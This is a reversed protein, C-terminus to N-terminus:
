LTPCGELNGNMKGDGVVHRWLWREFDVMQISDYDRHFCDERDLGFAYGTRKTVDGWGVPYFVAVPKKEFWAAQHLASWSGVFASANRVLNLSAPVTLMDLVQINGGAFMRADENAHIVRGSPESRPFSRCVLYVPVPLRRLVKVLKETLSPTFTREGISGAFPCFVVHGTSRVDDPADFIPQSGDSPGRILSEMPLGAFDMLAQTIATGKLGSRLFEVYKHGLDYLIFNKANRHHRFIEIAFPNHSAVLVAKASESVSMFNYSCQLYIVRIVDGLGASFLAASICLDNSM